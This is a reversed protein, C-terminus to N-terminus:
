PFTVELLDKEDMLTDIDNMESVINKHELGGALETIDVNQGTLKKAVNLAVYGKMLGYLAILAAGNNTLVVNVFLIKFVDDSIFDVNFVLLAIAYLIQPVYLLMLITLIMARQWGELQRYDQIAGRIFGRIGKVTDQETM